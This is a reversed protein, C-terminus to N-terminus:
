KGVLYEAIKQKAIGDPSMSSDIKLTKGSTKFNSIEEALFEAPKNPIDTSMTFFSLKNKHAIAKSASADSLDEM